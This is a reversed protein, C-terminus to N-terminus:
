LDAITEVIPIVNGRYIEMRALRDMRSSTSELGLLLNGKLQNKRRELEETPVSETKLIDLEKLVLDHAFDLREHDTGLYIGFVGSHQLFDVFSYISYALGHKERINQFLRSSMGAGLITNLLLLPYRRPDSYNFARRGICLHAQQFKNEFVLKNPTDSGLAVDLRKSHGPLAAFHEKVLDVIQNHELNGVTSIVIRNATYNNHLFDLLSSRRIGSVTEKSGLISYGLPHDPFLSQSFYEHVLDGPSDEQESIEELVVDKEMEIDKETMKSNLIMDALVDVATGVHEDLVHAYYCTHEKSTFANLHGGLSELADALELTSKAHTGKFVMHELFHAIGNEEIVEDSTGALIWLGISVSHVHSMRETIVRLGNDLSTKRIASDFDM